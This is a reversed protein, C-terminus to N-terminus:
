FTINAIDSLYIKRITDELPCTANNDVYYNAIMIACEPKGMGFITKFAKSTKNPHLAKASSIQSVTKGSIMAIDSDPFIDEIEGQPIVLINKSKLDAILKPVNSTQYTIGLAACLNQCITQSNVGIFDNDLIAIFPIQFANAIRLYNNINDKSGMEIIGLNIRDFNCDDSNALAPNQKIYKDLNHLLHRETAGEVLLIKDSFFLEANDQNIFRKFHTATLSTDQYIVTEGGVKNVRIIESPEFNSVLSLSHTSVIIQTHDEVGISKILNGLYRIGHPHIFAEPEEIGFLKCRATKNKLVLELIGIIIANQTGTGVDAVNFLKGGDKVFVELNRLLESPHNDKTLQFAVDEVYSVIRASKVLKDKESAFAIQIKANLNQLLTQIDAYQPSAELVEKMLQGYQTWKSATLEDEQNRIAPVILMKMLQNRIDEVKRHVQFGWLKVEFADETSANEEESEPPIYEFNKRLLLTIEATGDTIKTSLAGQQPKTLNPISFLKPKDAVTFGGIKVNIEIPVSTDFFDKEEFRNYKPNKSGLMLYLARLINSKGSNNKGVLASHASPFLVKAGTPSFSRYNKIEIETVQM